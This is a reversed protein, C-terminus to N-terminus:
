DQLRNKKRSFCIVAVFTLRDHNVTSVRVFVYVHKISRSVIISRMFTHNVYYKKVVAMQAIEFFGSCVAEV